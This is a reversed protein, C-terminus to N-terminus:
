EALVREDTVEYDWWAPRQILRVIAVTGGWAPCVNRAGTAVGPLDVPEIEGVDNDKADLHTHCVRRASNCASQSVRNVKRPITVYQVLAILCRKRVPVSTVKLPPAQGARAECYQFRFLNSGSGLAKSRTGRLGVTKQQEACNM